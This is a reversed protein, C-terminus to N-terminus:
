SISIQISHIYQKLEEDLIRYINASPTENITWLPSGRIFGHFDHHLIIKSIRINDKGFLEYFKEDFFRDFGFPEWGHLIYKVNINNKKLIHKTNKFIQHQSMVDTSVGNDILPYYFVVLNIKM